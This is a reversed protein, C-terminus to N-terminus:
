NETRERRKRETDMMDESIALVFSMLEPCNLACVSTIHCIFDEM